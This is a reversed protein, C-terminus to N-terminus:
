RRAARPRASFHDPGVRAPAGHAGNTAITMRVRDNTVFQLAPDNDESGIVLANTLTGEARTGADGEM